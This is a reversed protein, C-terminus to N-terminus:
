RETTSPLRGGIWETVTAVIGNGCIRYRQTNSIEVLVGDDDVGHATWGEPWGMLRECELPTLRRVITQTKDTVVVGPPNGGKSAGVKLTPSTEGPCEGMEQSGGTPYFAHEVVPEHMVAPYGMGPKGGGVSLSYAQDSMNIEGRQNQHVAKPDNMTFLGHQVM